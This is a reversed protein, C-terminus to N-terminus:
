EAAKAGKRGAKKPNKQGPMTGSLISLRQRHMSLLMESQVRLAELVPPMDANYKLCQVLLDEEAYKKRIDSAKTTLMDDVFQTRAERVAQLAAQFPDRTGPGQAWAWSQDERLQVEISAGTAMIDAYSGKIKTASALAVEIASKTRQKKASTENTSTASRKMPTELEGVQKAKDQMTKSASDTAKETIQSCKFNDSERYQETYLTWSRIFKEKFQVSIYLYKTSDTMTDAMIWTGKMLLCKTCYTMARRVAAAGGGEEVVIREFSYYVGHTTDHKTVTRQQIRRESVKDFQTKLWTRRFEQKDKTKRLSQYESSKAGDGARSFRVGFKSRMDVGTDIARKMEDLEEDDGKKDDEKQESAIGNGSAPVRDQLHRDLKAIIENMDAKDDFNMTEGWFEKVVPDPGAGQAQERLPIEADDRPQSPPIDSEMDMPSQTPPSSPSM